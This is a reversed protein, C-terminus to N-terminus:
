LGDDTRATKSLSVTRHQADTAFSFASQEDEAQSPTKAHWADALAYLELIIERNIEVTCAGAFVSIPREPVFSIELSNEVLVRAFNESLLWDVFNTSSPLSVEDGHSKLFVVVDKGITTIKGLDYTMHFHRIVSGFHPLNDNEPWYLALM